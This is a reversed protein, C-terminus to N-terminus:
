AKIIRKIRVDFVDMGGALGAQVGFDADEFVLCNHPKVKMLEACRLFTEPDPKHKTVDEAVVITDFYSRLALKDILLDTMAKHSGTGLALPKRGFYDKVIKAAPLLTAEKQLLEKGYQRKLVIVDELFHSPMNARKMMEQAIVRVPAGGLEYMVQGNLPYGLKEGVMEWAKAHSPMTDIVTGDMDFILGDYQEIVANDLM